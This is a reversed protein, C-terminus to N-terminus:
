ANSISQANVTVNETATPYYTYSTITGISGTEYFNGPPGVNFVELTNFNASPATLTFYFSTVNTASVNYVGAVSRRFHEAGNVFFRVTGTAGAVLDLTINVNVTASTAATHNYGYWESIKASDASNPKSTSAQNIAVYGGNEADDIAITANSARGLETNIQSFRITGSSPLAM